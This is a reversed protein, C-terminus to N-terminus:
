FNVAAKLWFIDEILKGSQDLGSPTKNPNSGERRAWTGDFSTRMPGDWHLSLGHGKLRYSSPGTTPTGENLQKIYGEDYFGTFTLNYPLFKQLELSYQYGESGGAESAPYARVANAGGLYMKQSSDLNHDTKQGTMAFSLGFNNKFFQQRKFNIQAINFYGDVSTDGVDDNKGHMISVRGDNSAGDFMLQDTFDFPFALTYTRTFYDSQTGSLNKNIFRKIDYNLEANLNQTRSRYLPYNALVGVGGSYGFVKAVEFEKAVVKYELYNANVGLRLGNNGVPLLYSTRVYKTGETKLTTLGISDAWGFPSQLNVSFLARDRGTMRSGFNDIILSGQLRNKNKITVGIDTSGPKDGAILQVGAGAGPLDNALLIGRELRNLDLPEDEKSPPYIIHMIRDPNVNPKENDPIFETKGFSAELIDIQIVGSTIDQPPLTAQALFGVEKYLVSLSAVALKLENFTLEQGIYKALHKKLEETSIIKNNRFQFEVVKVKEGEKLLPTEEKPESLEPPPLPKSNPRQEIQKLISGADPAQVSPPAAFSTSIFFPLAFSFSSVANLFYNKDPTRKKAKYICLM